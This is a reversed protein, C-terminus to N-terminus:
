ACFRDQALEIIAKCLSIIEKKRKGLVLGDRIAYEMNRLQEVIEDNYLNVRKLPNDIVELVGRENIKHKM